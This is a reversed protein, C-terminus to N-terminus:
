ENLPKGGNEAQLEEFRKIAEDHREQFYQFNSEHAGLKRMLHWNSIICQCAGSIRANAAWLEKKLNKVQYELDAIKSEPTGACPNYMDPNWAYQLLQAVEGSSNKDALERLEQPNLKKLEEFVQKMAEKTTIPEGKEINSELRNYGRLFDVCDPCIYGPEGKCTCNDSM